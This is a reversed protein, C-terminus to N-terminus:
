RQARNFLWKATFGTPNGNLQEHALGIYTLFVTALFPGGTRIIAELIKNRSELRHEELDNRMENLSKIEALLKKRTDDDMAQELMQLRAMEQNELKLELPSKKM